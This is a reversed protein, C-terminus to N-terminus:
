MWKNLNQKLIEGSRAQNSLPAAEEDNSCTGYPKIKYNQRGYLILGLSLDLVEELQLKSLELFDVAYWNM